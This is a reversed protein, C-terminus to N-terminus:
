ARAPRSASGPRRPRRPPVDPQGGPVAARGAMWPMSRSALAPSTTARSPALPAPLVVVSSARAPSTAGIEPVTAKWPSPRRRRSCWRARCPSPKRVSSRQTKMCSVPQCFRLSPRPRGSFASSSKGSSSSCRPLCTPGARRHGAASAPGRDPARRRAGRAARRRATGRGRASPPRAAARRRVRPRRGPRPRSGRRAARGGPARPRRGPARAAGRGRDDHGPRASRRSRRPSASPM